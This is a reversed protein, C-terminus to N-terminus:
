IKKKRTTGSEVEVVATDVCESSWLLPRDSVIPRIKSPPSAQSKRITTWLQVSSPDLISFWVTQACLIIRDGNWGKLTDCPDSLMVMLTLQGQRCCKEVKM